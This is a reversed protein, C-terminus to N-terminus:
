CGWWYHASHVCCSRYFCFVSTAEALYFHFSQPSTTHVSTCFFDFHLFLPSWSSSSSTPATHSLFTFLCSLPEQHSATGQLLSLKYRIRGHRVGQRLRASIWWITLRWVLSLPSVSVCRVAHTLRRASLCASPCTATNSLAFRLQNTLSLLQCGLCKHAHTHTNTHATLTNDGWVAPLSPFVPSHWHICHACGAAQSRSLSLAFGVPRRLSLSTVRLSLRPMSNSFLRDCARCAQTETYTHTCM